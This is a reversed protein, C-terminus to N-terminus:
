DETVMYLNNDEIKYFMPAVLISPYKERLRKAESLVFTIENDIEFLPAYSNFHEEARARDWSANDMLGKIFDEKKRSIGVMGCHNHALLAIATVGGVAIAYSVKFESYRLNGGGSRIIYSFNEPIRLHKRNDMCMGVLLEANQYADFEKGLNHYQLLKEIATGHYKNPIDDQTVVPKLRDM